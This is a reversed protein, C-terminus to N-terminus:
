KKNPGGRMHPSSRRPPKNPGGRKPGPKTSKPKKAPTRKTQRESSPIMMAMSALAGAPNSRLAGKAVGKAINKAGTRLSKKLEKGPGGYDDSAGFPLGQAASKLNFIHKKIGKLPKNKAKAERVLKRELAQSDNIGKELKKFKAIKEREIKAQHKKYESYTPSGTASHERARDYMRDFRDLERKSLKFPKKPKKTEM